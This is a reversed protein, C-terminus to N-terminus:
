SSMSSDMFRLMHDGERPPAPKNAERAAIVAEKGGEYEGESAFLSSARRGAHVGIAIGLYTSKRQLDQKSAWAGDERMLERDASLWEPDYSSM